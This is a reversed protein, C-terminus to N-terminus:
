AYSRMFEEMGLAVDMDILAATLREIAVVRLPRGMREALLANKALERTVEHRPYKKLYAIGQELVTEARRQRAPGLSDIGGGAGIFMTHRTREIEEFVNTMRTLHQGMKVQKAPGRLLFYGVTGIGVCVLLFEM